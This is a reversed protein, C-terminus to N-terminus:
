RSSRRPKFEDELTRMGLRERVREHDGSLHDGSTTRKAQHAAAEMVEDKYATVPGQSVDEIGPRHADAEMRSRIADVQNFVGFVKPASSTAPRGHVVLRLWEAAFGLEGKLKSHATALAEPESSFGKSTTVKVRDGSQLTHARDYGGAYEHALDDLGKKLDEVMVTFAAPTMSATM